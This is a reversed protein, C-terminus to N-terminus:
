AAICAAQSAWALTSIIWSPALKFRLGYAASFRRNFELYSHCRAGEGDSAYNSVFYAQGGVAAGPVLARELLLFAHVVNEVYIHDIVNDARGVGPKGARAAASILQDRPGYM